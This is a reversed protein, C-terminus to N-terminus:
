FHARVTQPPSCPLLRLHADQRPSRYEAARERESGGSSKRARAITWFRSFHSLGRSCPPKRPANATGRAITIATATGITTGIVIVIATVIATVTAVQWTLGELVATGAMPGWVHSIGPKGLLGTQRAADSDHGEVM